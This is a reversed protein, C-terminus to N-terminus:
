TSANDGHEIELPALVDALAEIAGLSDDAVRSRLRWVPGAGFDAEMALVHRQSQQGMQQAYERAGSLGFEENAFLVVRITRAPPQPLAAILRDAEMVIAVGAGDDLAGQGLDWSDLHADLLVVEDRASSGPIEAIVNASWGPPLERATSKVRVRVPKGAS